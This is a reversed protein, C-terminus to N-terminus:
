GHCQLAGNEGDKKDPLSEGVRYIASELMTQYEEPDIDPPDPRPIGQIDWMGSSIIDHIEKAIDRKRERCGKIMKKVHDRNEILKVDDNLGSYGKGRLIIEYRWRIDLQILLLSILADQRALDELHTNFFRRCWETEDCHGLKILYHIYEHNSLSDVYKDIFRRQEQQAETIDEGRAYADAIKWWGTLDSSCM